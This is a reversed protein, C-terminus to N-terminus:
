RRDDLPFRGIAEYRAGGPSLHSQMLLVESVIIPESELRFNLLADTMRDKGVSEKIRALTLHPRFPHEEAAFGLDQMANEIRKQLELLGSPAVLGAWYVRPRKANPFAGTGHINMSFQSIGTCADRIGDTIDTLQPPEVEGLFKLTLHMGRPEVWKVGRGLWGISAEPQALIQKWDEPLGIAIFLRM